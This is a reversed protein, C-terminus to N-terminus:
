FLLPEDGGVGVLPSSAVGRIGAAGDGQWGVLILLDHFRNTKIIGFGLPELLVVLELPPFVFDM